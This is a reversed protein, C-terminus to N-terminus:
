KLYISEGKELDYIADQRFTRGFGRAEVEREYWFSIDMVFRNKEDIWIGLYANESTLETKLLDLLYWLNYRVIEHNSATVEYGEISVMYGTTKDIPNLERDLTAGGKAFIDWLDITNVTRTMIIERGERM